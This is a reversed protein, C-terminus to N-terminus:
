HYFKRKGHPLEPNSERSICKTRYSFLLININSRNLISGCGFNESKSPLLFLLVFTKEVAPISGAVM